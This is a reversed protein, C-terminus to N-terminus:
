LGVLQWTAPRASSRPAGFGRRHRLPYAVNQKGTMHPGVRISQFVMGINRSRPPVQVGDAPASVV